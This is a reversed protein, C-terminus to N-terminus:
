GEFKPPNITVALGLCIPMIDLVATTGALTSLRKGGSLEGAIVFHGREFSSLHDITM